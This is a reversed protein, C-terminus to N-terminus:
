KKKSKDNKGGKKNDKDPKQAKDAGKEPKERKAFLSHKETSKETPKEEAKAVAAKEAISAGDDAEATNHHLLKTIFSAKPQDQTVERKGFLGVHAKTVDESSPKAFLNGYRELNKFIPFNNPKNYQKAYFGGYLELNKHILESGYSETLPVFKLKNEAIEENARSIAFSYREPMNVYVNEISALSTISTNSAYVDLAWKVFLRFNECVFGEAGEPTERLMYKPLKRAKKDTHIFSPLEATATNFINFM